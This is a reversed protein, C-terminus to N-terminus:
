VCEDLIRPVKIMEVILMKTTESQLQQVLYLGIDPGSLQSKPTQRLRQEM